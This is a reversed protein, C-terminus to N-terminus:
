GGTLANTVFMVTDNELNAAFQGQSDLYFNAKSMIARGEQISERSTCVMLSGTDGDHDAGLKQHRSPHPALSNFLQSNRVPFFPAIFSQSLTRWDADLPMRSEQKVTSILLPYSPYTSFDTAVPYRTVHAIYQRTSVYIAIYILETLTIPLCDSASRGEPLEDIGHILRFTGDHGRYILGLHHGEVDIDRWKVADSEFTAIVRRLGAVSMWRDYTKNKVRVRKSKLTKKDTLLAEGGAAPFVESLFGTRLQYITERMTSVALQFIGVGTHNLEIATADEATQAKFPIATFVNRTTGFVNRAMWRGMYANNKGRIIRLMSTYIECVANQMSMRQANFMDPSTKAVELQITNSIAVLKYYLSNIEDSSERGDEITIDRYGAPLVYIADLMCRNKKTEVLKILEDRKPSTSRAHVINKFHNLFFYYGTQGDEPTSKIFDKLKPDFVAYSKGGMIEAYLGKLKCLAFFMSPHLVEVRLNIWSFKVMRQPTGMIGFIEASYLGQPHFNNTAGDYIDLSTVPQVVERINQPIILYDINFPTLKSALM